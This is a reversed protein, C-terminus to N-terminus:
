LKLQLRPNVQLFARESWRNWLRLWLPILLRSVLTPLAAVILLLLLWLPITVPDAM